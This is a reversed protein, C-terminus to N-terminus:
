ICFRRQYNRYDISGPKTGSIERAIIEQLSLVINAAMSVPDIGKEPTSGHCGCGKVTIVFRDFSAMTCGPVVSLTGSPLNPGLISGIHTGFVADVGDLVGEKIAVQAGKSIEEATRSFSVCM